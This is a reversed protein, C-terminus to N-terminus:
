NEITRYNISLPACIFAGVKVENKIEELYVFSYITIVRKEHQEVVKEGEKQGGCIVFLCLNTPTLRLYVVM